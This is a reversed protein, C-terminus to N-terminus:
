GVLTVGSFKEGVTVAVFTVGTVVVMASVFAVMVAEVIESLGMVVVAVTVSIQPVVLASVAVALALAVDPVGGSETVKVPEAAPPM